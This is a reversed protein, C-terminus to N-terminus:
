GRVEGDAGLRVFTPRAFELAAVASLAGAYWQFSDLVLAEQLAEVEHEDLQTSLLVGSRADETAGHRWLVAWSGGSVALGLIETPEDRVDIGDGLARTTVELSGETADIRDLSPQAGASTRAIWVSSGSADAHVSRLPGPLPITVVESRVHADPGLLRAALCRTATVGEPCRAHTIVVFREQDIPEIAFLEDAGPLAIPVPAAGTAVRTAIALLTGADRDTVIMQSTDGIGIAIGHMAGLGSAVRTPEGFACRAGYRDARAAPAPAEPESPETSTPATSTPATSTPATSAPETSTPEAPPESQEPEGGCAVAIVMVIVAIASAISRRRVSM